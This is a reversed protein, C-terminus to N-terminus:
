RLMKHRLSDSYISMDIIVNSLKSVDIYDTAESLTHKATLSTVSEGNKVEDDGSETSKDPKRPKIGTFSQVREKHTHLTRGTEKIIQYSITKWEPRVQSFLLEIIEIFNGLGGNQRDRCQTVLEAKVKADFTIHYLNELLSLYDYVEAEEVIQFEARRLRRHLQSRNHNKKRRSKQEGSIMDQLEYTGCLVIDVDSDDAIQRIVDLKNCNGNALYEVEDFVFCYNPNDQLSEEIMEQMQDNDNTVRVGIAKAMFILLSEMRTNPSCRFYYSPRTHQVCFDLVTVTKGEGPEGLVIAMKGNELHDIIGGLVTDQTNTKMRPLISEKM